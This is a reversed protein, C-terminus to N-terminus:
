GARTRRTRIDSLLGDLRKGSVKGQTGLQQAFLSVRYEELLWRFSAVSPEVPNLPYESWYPKIADLWADLERRAGRDFEFRGGLRELRMEIANLYVEYRALNDAPTDWIFSPNLLGALQQNVDKGVDLWALPLGKLQKGVRQACELVRIMIAAQGEAVAVLDGRGRNVGREFGAEDRPIGDGFCAMEVSREIWQLSAKPDLGRPTALLDLRKALKSERLLKTQTAMRAQALRIVGRRHVHAAADPDDMHQLQVGGDVASIVPILSLSLGDQELTQRAPLDGMNWQTLVPSKPAPTSVQAPTRLDKQLSALDRSQAIIQGHPDMVRINMRYYHDLAALEFQRVDFPKGLRRTVAKGLQEVLDGQRWRLTPLTQRAFDPLPVLQRRIAKPLTRVLAEVKEELMGPVLWDTVAATVSHLAAQPVELTVGDHDTGPNFEYSLTFRNGSVELHDPYAQQDLAASASLLDDQAMYLVRPQDREVRRRWREFSRADIIDSPLKSEYFEFLRQDDLLDRRRERAELDLIRAVQDLNNQMFTGQTKIEGQALGDRILLERAKIPSRKAFSVARKAVAPLGFLTGREHAMIQGHRKSWYPDGHTLKILQPAVTELWEPEIKAVTRAFLRTTEVLEAAVVWKPRGKAQRGPHLNFRTDRGGRYENEDKMGINGVLGTLVALHVSRYDAPEDNLRTTPKIALWLQRHIERWERVRMYHLFQKQCYKRFASSTLAQRQGEIRNWLAVIALFDSQEHADTGHAFDAADQAARPRERPDQVTLFSAIALAEHVCGYDRAALVMRGLKPDIPLRALERGLPTIIRRDDIAGIEELLKYGDTVYRRDPADIFPFREIDGLKLDLMQLIVSALNTRQLEPETFERRGEFDEQEYLRICVGPELRGCRGKRQNASAQSVAEIPLRQVKSRYSYRSMRAVGSDIVYRIGPVTLSTEAVNTALVIRQDGGTPHFIRQQESASLRAYLPLVDLQSLHSRRLAEAAGRIEREGPLFVLVDGRRKKNDQDLGRLEDVASVIGRYLPADDSDSSLPRYRVEVPFTRGEVMVVPADMFHASFRQYNITASTIIVKLDRRKPLLRKLYGLLFDINLGREHAEDIILTDYGKLLKDGRTEALLMGDTLLKVRTDQSVSDQFRVKYGILQGLETQTEEAIRAAVSRAALRRPQTHGIKGQTGRGLALCLKPLQTTKGSGTDGVVIVVQHNRVAEAIEEIRQSVPLDPPFTLNAPPAATDDPTM